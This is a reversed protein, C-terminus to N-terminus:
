ITRTPTPCKYCNSKVQNTINVELLNTTCNYISATNRKLTNWNCEDERSVKCYPLIATVRIITLPILNLPLYIISTGSVKNQIKKLDKVICKASTSSYLNTNTNTVGPYKLYFILPARQNIIKQMEMQTKEYLSKIFLKQHPADKINNPLKNWTEVVCNSFFKNRIELNTRKPQINLYFVSQRTTITRIPDVLQLWTNLKVNEKGHIIKYTQILNFRLRRDSLYQIGLELLKDKYTTGSFGSIM